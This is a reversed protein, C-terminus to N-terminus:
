GVVEKLFSEISDRDSCPVCRADADIRKLLGCLVKGPGVEVFISVDRDLMYRMSQTWLVPSTLQRRLLDAIEGPATVGQATVNSVVPIQADSFHVTEMASALEQEAPEMLPSHFAGSVNLRIARKAGHSRALEIAKEIAVVEGSIVTQAPSNYNAPEVIGAHRSEALFGDLNEEPMGIIAAMAGPREVGSTYMAQARVKVLRLADTYTLSGNAVLAAYEGVSHGAVFGPVTGKGEIVRWAAVSHTLIALQTYRTERLREEPGNFCIDKLDFGLTDNATDFTDRAVPFAEVIDKGMGVYQSGQGPFILATKPM